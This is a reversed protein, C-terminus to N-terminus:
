LQSVPDRLHVFAKGRTEEVRAYKMLISLPQPFSSWPALQLTFRSVDDDLSRCQTEHIRFGSMTYEGMCVGWIQEVCLSITAINPFQMVGCNVGVRCTFNILVEDVYVELQRKLFM